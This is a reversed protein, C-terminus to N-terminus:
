QVYKIDEGGFLIPSSMMNQLQWGGCEDTRWNTRVSRIVSRIVVIEHVAEAIEIFSLTFYEIAAVSSRIVNYLDFTLTEAPRRTYVTTVIISQLIKKSRKLDVRRCLRGLLLAPRLHRDTCGYTRGNTWLFNRRNSHFKAHLYLDIFSPICYSGIWPWPWSGKLSPFGAMKFAIEEAM